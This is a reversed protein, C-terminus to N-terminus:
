KWHKLSFTYHWAWDWFCLALSRVWICIGYASSTRCLSKNFMSHTLVLTNTWFGLEWIKLVFCKSFSTRSPSLFWIQNNLCCSCLAVNTLILLVTEAQIWQLQVWGVQLDGNTLHPKLYILQLQVQCIATLIQNMSLSPCLVLSFYTVDHAPVAMRGRCIIVFFMLTAASPHCTWVSCSEATKYGVFSPGFKPHLPNYLKAWIETLLFAWRHWATRQRSVAYSSMRRHLFKSGHGSRDKIKGSASAETVTLIAIQSNIGTCNKTWAKCTLTFPHLCLLVSNCM